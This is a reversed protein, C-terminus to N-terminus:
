RIGNVMPIFADPYCTTEYKEWNGSVGFIDFRYQYLFPLQRLYIDAANIMKKQKKADVALIPDANIGDRGKVEVFVITREKELILDVEIKNMRWNRERIVYGEKLYFDAALQECFAGWERNDRGLKKRDVKGPM